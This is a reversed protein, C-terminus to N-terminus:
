EPRMATQANVSPKLSDKFTPSFCHDDQDGELYDLLNLHLEQKFTIM